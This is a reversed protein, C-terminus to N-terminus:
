VREASAPEPSQQGAAAEERLKRDKKVVYMADDAASLLSDRTAGNEPYLAVGISAAGRLLYGEVVFPDDFCHELRDVVGDVEARNHVVSVLAAFEDGGLRALMDAGRLQRKMRNAVEQLFIDGVHHGYQDNIQKFKDLDIYILGLHSATQRAEEIRGDMFKEMAFRNPIDTLLDFESRRRLDTFLRRTEIALAALRVGVTLAETERASSKVLPDLGAYLTGLTSGSRGAIKIKVIRLTEPQPPRAGLTKGGAIECWCPAGSLISSVLVSIEELIGPLPDSGNIKELIHSRRQEFQAMTALTATQQRVKSRLTWGWASVAIVVLLLLSVTLILNRTNMLSPKALVEIDDFSRLLINFPVEQGKGSPSSDVTMCIGTVRIRSGLPIPTLSALQGTALPRHRYIATFLKGDTSLVFEDQAAERVESVLQGELSVLDFQHGVPQNINWFALQRWTVQLPVVPSRVHSDKVEGDSLTSLFDHVEPYGTVDAVDGIQLNALTHTNIWLSKAGDQLVIAAGPQYYTITGHVRVRQTTDWVHYTHLVQDLPTVPLTWPSAPARKLVKIQAMTPVMITFGALQMKDDYEGAVVGTVEVEAGLLDELDNQDNNDVAAGIHGGDTVLQLRIRRTPPASSLSLDVARVVAHMTVLMCDYRLHLLGDFGTPIPKPLADHRLFLVSSAVIIPRFSEQTTGSVLVRDGPAVKVDPSIVVFIADDRDQVFLLREYARWYTVTAEFAVPLKQSAEANGLVKIARLSTLTAPAAAWAASACGLVILM